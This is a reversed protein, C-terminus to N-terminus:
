ARIDGALRISGARRYMHNGRRDNLRFTPGGRENDKAGGEVVVV